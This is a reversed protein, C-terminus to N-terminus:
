VRQDIKRVEAIAIKGCLAAVEAPSKRYCDIVKSGAVGTPNMSGLFNLYIVAVGKRRALPIWKAAYAMDTGNVYQGDSAIFLIRAGRGDLLTLEKDIALAADKFAESGDYPAFLRVDRERVGAPTIGHVHDGFHVSAVKADVHAGATSLVWQSSALPEMAANMSGSIDGLFGITLPTSEVRKRRKGSWVEVGSADRGQETMADAQVAARGVLRGPPVVSRVKTVARDRYDIKELSRALMKAARREDASPPRSGLYHAFGDPTYGHLGTHAFAEAHPGEAAKRREADTRREARAREAREEGRAETVEKDMKSEAIHVKGMIKDGFGSAEGEGDEGEGEGEGKGEGSGDGEGDEGEGEGEGKGEGSGDGEGPDGPLPEGMMSEGVMGESDEPDEGLADLWAAAIEVMGAYDHDHLMLFRQWLPELVDLTEGLVAAIDRRFTAAERRTLVKADVRALLLGAAAAAGYPSDPIHFDRGVIEMACGRLFPRSDPHFRLAQAEIRPEELTTIVDVMKRTAEYNEMLDRPDWHTHRAHAAEHTCAGVSPAYTLMWLRDELNVKDPPGMPAAETNIHMEALSPIFCAPAGMGATSSVVATIDTRHARKNTFKGVQAAVGYWDDDSRNVTSEVKGYLIHGM